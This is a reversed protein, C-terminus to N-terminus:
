HHHHHHAEMGEEHTKHVTGHPHEAPGYISYLKLPEDGTNVINHWKGAPIIVAMDDEMEVRYDMNDESDGLMVVGKGSEVRIFQEINHHIEAGIDEGKELSMLSLQLTTGTWLAHRYSKNQLTYEEMDFVFIEPGFDKYELIAEQNDAAVTNVDQGSNNCSVAVFLITAVLLTTLKKMPM